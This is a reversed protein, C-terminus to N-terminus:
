RKGPCCVHEAVGLGEGVGEGAGWGAIDLNASLNEVVDSAPMRWPCDLADADAAMAAM